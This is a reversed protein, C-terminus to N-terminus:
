ISKSNGVKGKVYHEMFNADTQAEDLLIDYLRDMKSLAKIGEEPTYPIPTGDDDEINEWDFLVTNAFVTVARLRSEEASMAGAQIRTKADRFSQAASDSWKPNTIGMRGILFRPKVGDPRGVDVSVWIGKQSLTKSSSFQKALLSYSM